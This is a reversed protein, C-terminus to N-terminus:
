PMPSPSAPDALAAKPLLFSAVASGMQTLDAPDLGAVDADTLKVNMRAYTRNFGTLSIEILRQWAQM